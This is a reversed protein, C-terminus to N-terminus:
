GREKEKRLTSSKWPQRKLIEFFSKMINNRRIQYRNKKNSNTKNFYNIFNSNNKLKVAKLKTNM